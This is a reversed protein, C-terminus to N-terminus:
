IPPMELNLLMDIILIEFSSNIKKLTDIQSKPLSRYDHVIFNRVAYLSKAIGAGTQKAKGLAQLLSDCQNQLDRIDLLQEYDSFLKTIRKEEPIFEKIHDQLDRTYIEKKKLKHYVALLEHHLVKEILLEIVQYLLHFKVLPHQEYILEKFLETLYDEQQLPSAIKQLNVKKGAPPKPTSDFGKVYKFYYGYKFLAPLYFPLRFGDPLTQNSLILVFTSGVDYVEGLENTDRDLAFELSNNANTLLKQFAVFAYRLFHVNEAYEHKNSLLSQLPFIWGIRNNLEREYVQFIDNESFKRKYLIYLTFDKPQYDQHPTLVYEFILVNDSKDASSNLKFVGTTADFTVSDLSLEKENVVIFPM